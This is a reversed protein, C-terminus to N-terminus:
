ESQNEKNELQAVDDVRAPDSEDGSWDGPPLDTLFNCEDCVFCRHLCWLIWNM